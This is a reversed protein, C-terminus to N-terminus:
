PFVGSIRLEMVTQDLQMKKSHQRIERSSSTVELVFGSGVLLIGSEGLLAFVEHPVLGFGCCPPNSGMPQDPPAPPVTRRSLIGEIVLRADNRRARETM